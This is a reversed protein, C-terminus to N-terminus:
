VARLRSFFPALPAPTRAVPPRGDRRPGGLDRPPSNTEAVLIDGNPLTYSNRPHDLGEAFREVILGPAAIPAEGAQWRDVEAVAITPFIQPRPATIEPSAGTVADLPLKAVDPRTIYWIGALALVIVILIINRVHKWM